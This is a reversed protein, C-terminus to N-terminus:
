LEKFLSIAEKPQESNLIGYVLGIFQYKSDPWQSFFYKCQSRSTKYDRNLLTYHILRVYAKEKSPHHMRVLLEAQKVAKGYQGLEAQHMALELVNSKLDSAYSSAQEFYQLASKKDNLQYSIHQGAKCLLDAYEIFGKKKNRKSLIAFIYLVM